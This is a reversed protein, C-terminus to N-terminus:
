LSMFHPRREPGAPPLPTPTAAARAAAQAERREEPTAPLVVQPKAGYRDIQDDDFPRSVAYADVAADSVAHWARGIRGNAPQRNDTRDRRAARADPDGGMIKAVNEFRMATRGLVGGASQQRSLKERKAKARDREGPSDFHGPNPDNPDWTGRGPGSDPRKMNARRQQAAPPRQQGAQPQNPSAVPQPAKMNEAWAPLRSAPSLRPVDAGFGSLPLADPPWIEQNGRVGNPPRTSQWEVEVYDPQERDGHLTAVWVGPFKADNEPPISGKAVLILDDPSRVYGNVDDLVVWPNANPDVNNRLRDNEAKKWMWGAQPDDRQVGAAALPSPLNVRARPTFHNADFQDYGLLLIDGDLHAQRDAATIRPLWEVMEVQPGTPQVPTTGPPPPPAPADAVRWRGPGGRETPHPVIGGFMVAAVFPRAPDVEAHALDDVAVAGDTYRIFGRGAAREMGPQHTVYLDPNATRTIEPAFGAIPLRAPEWFRQNPPTNTRLMGADHLWEVDVTGSGGDTLLWGGPGPQNYENEHPLPGRLRFDAFRIQNDPDTPGGRLDNTPIPAPAGSYSAWGALPRRPDFNAPNLQIQPVANDPAPATPFETLPFATPPLVHDGPHASRDDVWVYADVRRSTAVQRFGGDPHNYQTENPPEGLLQMLRAGPDRRLEREGDITWSHVGGREAWGRVHQDATGFDFPPPPPVPTGGPPTVPSGPATVPGTASPDPTSPHAGTPDLWSPRPVPNTPGPPPAPTTPDPTRLGPDTTSGPGTTPNPPTPFGPRTRWTRVSPDPTGPAPTTPNTAAADNSPSPTPDPTSPTFPRARTAPRASPTASPTPLVFGGDSIEIGTGAGRAHIVVRSFDAAYDGRLREGWDDTQMPLYVRDIAEARDLGMQTQVEALRAADPEGAVWRAAVRTPEARRHGVLWIGPDVENPPGDGELVIRHANAFGGGPGDFGVATNQTSTLGGLHDATIARFAHDSLAWGFRDRRDVLSGPAVMPKAPSVPEPVRALRAIEDAPHTATPVWQPQSRRPLPAGPESDVRLVDLGIREAVDLGMRDALQSLEDLTPQGDAWRAVIIEDDAERKGVLWAGEASQSEPGDGVQLILPSRGFGLGFEIDGFDANMISRLEPLDTAAVRQHYNESSTWAHVISGDELSGRELRLANPDTAPEVETERTRTGSTLPSLYGAPDPQGIDRLDDPIPFTSFSLVRFSPFRDADFQDADPLFDVFNEGTDQHVLWAANLDLRDESPFGSRLNYSEGDAAEGERLPVLPSFGLVFRKGTEFNAEAWGALPRPAPQASTAEAPAPQAEAPAPNTPAGPRQGPRLPTLDGPGAPTPPRFEMPQAYTGQQRRVEDSFGRVPLAGAPLWRQNAAPEVRPSWRAFEAGDRDEILWGEENLGTVALDYRNGDPLQSDADLYVVSEQTWIRAAAVSNRELPPRAPVNENAPPAPFIQWGPLELFERTQQPEPAVVPTHFGAIPYTNASVQTWGDPPRIGRRVWAVMTRTQAPIAAAGQGSPETRHTRVVWMGGERYQEPTPPTGMLVVARLGDARRQDAPPFSRVARRNGHEDELWGGGSAAGLVFPQRPGAINPEENEAM